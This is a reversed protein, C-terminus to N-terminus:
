EEKLMSSMSKTSFTDTPRKPKLRASFWARKTLLYKQVAQQAFQVYQQVANSETALFKSSRRRAAAVYTAKQEACRVGAKAISSNELLVKSHKTADTAHERPKVGNRMNAAKVAKVLM